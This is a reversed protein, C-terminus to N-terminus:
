RPAVELRERAFAADPTVDFRAGILDALKTLLPAAAEAV